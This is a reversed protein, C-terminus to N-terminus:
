VGWNEGSEAQSDSANHQVGLCRPYEIGRPFKSDSDGGQGLGVFEPFLVDLLDCAGPDGMAPHGLAILRAQELTLKRMEPPSYAQKPITARDTNAAKSCHPTGFALLGIFDRLHGRFFEIAKRFPLTRLTPMPYDKKPQM